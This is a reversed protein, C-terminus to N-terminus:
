SIAAFGIRQGLMFGLQSDCTDLPHNAEQICLEGNSPILLCQKAKPFYICPYGPHNPQKLDQPPRQPLMECQHQTLADSLFDQQGHLFSPRCHQCM